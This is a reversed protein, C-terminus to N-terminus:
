DIAWAAFYAARVADGIQGVSACDGVIRARPYKAFISEALEARPKMGFAVVATDANIEKIKGDATEAKVGKDTFELIKHNTLINVNKEALKVMLAEKNDCFLKDAVSALMEVITVNKGEEALDLALDCGSVGGGAILVNNGKVETKGLHVDILEAVNAGGIGKINPVIPFAGVAVIIQDADELEFSDARIAKNFIVKVGLKRIQTKLYTVYSRVRDKFEPTSAAILQGGLKDDKEYLTVDHGKLAAVRAAEMGGPGGGVIVVKKKSVAPKLGYVKEKGCPANVACTVAFGQLINGYCFQNCALCPRIDEERGERLKDAFEPDAILGRGMMIYDAKGQQVADLATNPTFNGSCLVPINVTEKVRASYDACFANGIYPSACGYYKAEYCGLDIDLGDLGAGELIKFIPVTDEFSRGGKFMHDAAMRMLVPVGPAAKKMSQIVEVAFRMRNEVSGGYKDTRKNWIESM